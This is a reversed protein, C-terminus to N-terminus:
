RTAVRAVKSGQATSLERARGQRRDRAWAGAIVEDDEWMVNAVYCEGAFEVQARASGVVESDSDNVQRDM